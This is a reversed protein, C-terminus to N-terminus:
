RIGVRASEMAYKQRNRTECYVSYHTQLNKKGTGGRHRHFGLLEASWREPLAIHTANRPVGSEVNCRFSLPANRGKVRKQGAWMHAGKAKTKHRCERRVNGETVM